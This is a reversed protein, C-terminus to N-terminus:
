PRGIEIQSIRITHDERDLIVTIAENCEGGLTVYVWRLESPTKDPWDDMTSLIEPIDFAGYDLPCCAEFSKQLAALTTQEQFSRTTMAYAEAYSRKTLADVFALAAQDMAAEGQDGARAKAQAVSYEALGALSCQPKGKCRKQGEQAASIYASNGNDNARVWSELNHFAKFASPFDNLTEFALAIWNLSTADPHIENAIQYYQLAEYIVEPKCYLGTGGKVWGEKAPASLDRELGTNETRMALTLVASAAKYRFYSGSNNM